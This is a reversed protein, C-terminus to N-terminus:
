MAPRSARDRRSWSGPWPAPWRPRYAAAARPPPRPASPPPAFSGGTMFIAGLTPQAEEEVEVEVDYVVGNVSVKLQM